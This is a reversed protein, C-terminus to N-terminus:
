YARCKQNLLGTVNGDRRLELVDDGVATRCDDEILRRGFYGAKQLRRLALAKGFVAIDLHERLKMKKPKEILGAGVASAPGLWGGLWACALLGAAAALLTCVELAMSRTM